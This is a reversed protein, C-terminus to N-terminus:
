RRKAKELWDDGSLGTDAKTMGAKSLIKDWGQNMATHVRCTKNSWPLKAVDTLVTTMLGKGKLGEPVYVDALHITGDDVKVSLSNSSLGDRTPVFKVMTWDGEASTEVEYDKTLETLRKRIINVVESVRSSETVFRKFTIM